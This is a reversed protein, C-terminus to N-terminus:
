QSHWTSDKGDKQAQRQMAKAEGLTKAEPYAKLLQEGARAEELREARTTVDNEWIILIAMFIERPVDDLSMSIGPGAIPKNETDRRPASVRTEDLARLEKGIQQVIWSWKAQQAAQRAVAFDLKEYRILEAYLIEAVSATDVPKGVYGSATVIRKTMDRMWGAANSIRKRRQNQNKAM